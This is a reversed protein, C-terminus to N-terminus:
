SRSHGQGEYFRRATAIADVLVDTTAREVRLDRCRELQAHGDRIIPKVIWGFSCEDDELGLVMVALPVDRPLQMALLQRQVQPRLQGTSALLSRLIRSHKVEVAVLWNANGDVQVLLDVGRVQRQVTVGPVRTLVVIASSEALQELSNRDRSSM